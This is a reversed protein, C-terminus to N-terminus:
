EITTISWVVHMTRAEHRRTRKKERSDQPWHVGQRSPEDHSSLIMCRMSDPSPRMSSRSSSISTHSLMLGPTWHGDFHGGFMVVIQGSPGDIGGGITLASPMNRSSNRTWMLSPFHGYQHNEEGFFSAGNVAAARQRERRRM